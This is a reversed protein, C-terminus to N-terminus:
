GVILENIVNIIWKTGFEINSNLITSNESSLFLEEAHTIDLIEHLNFHFSPEKKLKISFYKNIDTAILHYTYEIAGLMEVCDSFTNQIIFNELMTKYKIVINNLKSKTILEKIHNSNNYDCELLFNYFTEVHTLESLNEDVLNKVLYKRNDPYSSKHLTLALIQTWYNVLEIFFSFNFSFSKIDSPFIIKNNDYYKIMFKKADIFKVHNM